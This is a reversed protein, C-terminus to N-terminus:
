CAMETSGGVCPATGYPAPSNMPYTTGTIDVWTHKVCCKAETDRGWEGAPADNTKAYWWNNVGHVCKVRPDAVRPMSKWSGDKMEMAHPTMKSEILDLRNMLNWQNRQSCWVAMCTLVFVIM